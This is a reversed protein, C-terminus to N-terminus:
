NELFGEIDFRMAGGAFHDEFALFPKEHARDHRVHNRSLGENQENVEETQEECMQVLLSHQGNKEYHSNCKGESEIVM